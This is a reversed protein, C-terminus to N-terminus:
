DKNPVNPTASAGHVLQMSMPALHGGQGVAPLVRTQEAGPLVRPKDAPVHLHGPKFSGIPSFTVVTLQAVLREEPVQLRHVVLLLNSQALVVAALTALGDTIVAAALPACESVSAVLIRHSHALSTIDRYRVM